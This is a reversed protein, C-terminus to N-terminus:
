RDATLSGCDQAPVHSLICLLPAPLCTSTTPSASKIFPRNLVAIFGSLSFFLNLDYLQGPFQGSTNTGVTLRSIQSEREGPALFLSMFSCGTCRLTILVATASERTASQSIASCPSSSCASRCLRSVIDSSPCALLFIESRLRM